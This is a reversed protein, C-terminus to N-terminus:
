QFFHGMDLLKLLLLNAFVTGAFIAMYLDFSAARLSKLFAWTSVAGMLWLMIHQPELM